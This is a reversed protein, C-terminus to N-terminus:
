GSAHVQSIHWGAFEILGVQNAIRRESFAPREDKLKGQRQCPYSKILITLTRSQLFSCCNAPIWISSCRVNGILPRSARSCREPM